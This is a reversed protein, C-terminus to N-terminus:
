IYLKCSQLEKKTLGIIAHLKATEACTSRMIFIWSVKFDIAINVNLDNCQVRSQGARTRVLYVEM